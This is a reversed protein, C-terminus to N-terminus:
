AHAKTLLGGTCLATMLTIAGLYLLLPFRSGVKQLIGAASLRVNSLEELRSLGRDILYFGVHAERDNIQQPPNSVRGYKERALEIAKLAM